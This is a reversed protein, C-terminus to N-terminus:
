AKEKLNKLQEDWSIEFQERLFKNKEQIPMEQLRKDRSLQSALNLVESQGYKCIFIIDEEIKSVL